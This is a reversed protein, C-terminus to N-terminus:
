LFGAVQPYILAVTSSIFGANSVILVIGYNGYNLSRLTVHAHTHARTHRYGIITKNLGVGSVDFLLGSLLMGGCNRFM